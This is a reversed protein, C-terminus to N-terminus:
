RLFDLEAGKLIHACFRQLAVTVNTGARIESTLENFAATTVAPDGPFLIQRLMERGEPWLIGVLLCFVLFCLATMSAKGSIRKEVNRVKRVPGYEVRYGM